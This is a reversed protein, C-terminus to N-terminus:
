AETYLRLQESLPLKDPSFPVDQIGRLAAHQHDSLLRNNPVQSKANSEGASFGELKNTRQDLDRKQRESQSEGNLLPELTDTPLQRGETATSKRLPSINAPNVLPAYSHLIYSSSLLTRSEDHEDERPAEQIRPRAFTEIPEFGERQSFIDDNRLPAASKQNFAAGSRGLIDKEFKSWLKSTNEATLEYKTNVNVGHAANLIKYRHREAFLEYAQNLNQREPTKRRRKSNSSQKRRRKSSSKRRSASHESGFSRRLHRSDVSSQLASDRDFRASSKLAGKYSQSIQSQTLNANLETKVDSQPELALVYPEFTQAQYPEM